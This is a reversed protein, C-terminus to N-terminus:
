RSSTSSDRGIWWSYEVTGASVYNVANAVALAAKYLGARTEPLLAPAPSEELLKKTGASCPAIASAWTCACVTRTGSCRSRSPGPAGRGRVERPLARLSGFAAGAEAQCTAYARALDERRRVIGCRGAGRRGRGRKVIVPYGISDALVQARTWEPWRARAARSWPLARTSRWRAPRSGQRGHPPHGGAVSRHLHHRVRPLSDRRLRSERLATRLRSPHGRQRHHRRGLHHQPHQPLQRAGGAARHLVSEDALRVPLSDTDATSHAIM